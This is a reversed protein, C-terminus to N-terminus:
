RMVVGRCPHLRIWHRSGSVPSRHFGSEGSPVSRSRRQRRRITSPAPDPRRSSGDRSFALRSFALAHADSTNAPSSYSSLRSPRTRDPAPQLSRAALFGCALRSQDRRPRPSPRASAAHFQFSSRPRRDRFLIADVDRPHFRDAPRRFDSTGPRFWSRSPADRITVPMAGSSPMRWSLM